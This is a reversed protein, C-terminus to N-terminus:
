RSGARRLEEQVGAIFDVGASNFREVRLTDGINFWFEDKSNYVPWDALGASNPNGTKAFNTWYTALTGAMKRDLETWPYDKARLNDFVYIVESFHVAGVAARPNNGNGEPHPPVHSFNYLWM